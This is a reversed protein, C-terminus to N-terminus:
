NTITFNLITLRFERRSGDYDFNFLTLSGIRVELAIKDSQKANSNWENIFKM